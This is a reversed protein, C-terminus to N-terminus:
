VKTAGDRDQESAFLVGAWARGTKGTDEHREVVRECGRARLAIAFQQPSLPYRIKNDECWDLYRRKLLNAWVWDSRKGTFVLKEDVFDRLQDQDDRYEQEAEDAEKPRALGGLKQWELCGAIAWELIGPLEAELKLALDPDQEEKPIRVKFPVVNTREWISDDADLIILEHNTDIMIKAEPRFEFAHEYKRSARVRGGGTIHKISAVDLRSGQAPESISAFRKGKLDALGDNNSGADLKRSMLESSKMQQAYDPGLLKAVTEIFVTKGTNTEGLLQFYGKDSTKGTLCYGVIRRVWRRIDPNPFARRTFALWTPAKAGRVREVPALKTINMGSDHALLEGTRLDLTGNRLNLMWPDQDFEEPRTSVEREWSASRVSNMRVPTSFSGNVFSLFKGRAEKDEIAWAEKLMDRCIDTMMQMVEDTEDDRRWRRGDWVLWSKWPKVFRLRDSYADVLRRGNGENHWGYIPGSRKEAGSQMAGPAAPPDRPPAGFLRHFQESAEEWSYAESGELEVAEQYRRVEREAESKDMRLDRLQRILWAGTENRGAGDRVKAVAREVWSGAANPGPKELLLEDWGYGSAFHDTLDKCGPRPYRYSVECGAEEFRKRAKAAQRDGEGGDQDPVIVVSRGSLLALAEPDVHGMGHPSCLAARSRAWATMVDKEGDVVYFQDDSPGIFGDGPEALVKELRERWFLDPEIGARKYGSKWDGSADDFREWVKEVTGDERRVKAKRLLVDGNGRATYPYEELYEAVPSKM